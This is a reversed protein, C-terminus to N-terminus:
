VPNNKEETSSAEETQVPESSSASSYVASNYDEQDDKEQGERFVTTGCSLGAESEKEPLSEKIFQCLEYYEATAAAAVLQRIVAPSLNTLFLQMDAKNDIGNLLSLVSSTLDSVAEAGSRRNFGDM